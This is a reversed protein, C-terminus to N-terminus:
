NKEFTQPEICVKVGGNEKPENAYKATLAVVQKDNHYAVGQLADLVVKLCNDLDMVKANASGDKNRKPYLTIDISVNGNHKICGSLQAIQAVQEKEAAEFAKLDARESADLRAAKAKEIWTDLLVINHDTTM